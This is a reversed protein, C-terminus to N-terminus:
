NVKLGADKVVAAWKVIEGKLMKALEEPTSGVAVYGIQQLKAKITPSTLAAVTDSHIKKVIDPPTKAPVFLGQWSNVEFGALTEAIPPVEPAAPDPKPSTVGLVRIQGARANELLSGSAFYIDVRGPILDNLVLSAGRYPVHTMDLGAMKKFLEASLHPASGTGPSAMTIKGPNSKVHAIFEQVTKAPSSNPVFMYFPFDFLHTVPAFDGIPDYGLTRSLSPAVALSSTAYFITHGDPASKAVMEAAVNTGGGPRNEIVVQQGWAKSLPEAVLRAAVDTPGGAALPVILRVFRNPWAQAQARGSVAPVLAAPALIAAASTAILHRRNIM